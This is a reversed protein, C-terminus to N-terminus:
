EEVLDNQQVNSETKASYGGVNEKDAGETCEQMSITGDDDMLAQKHENLLVKFLMNTPTAHTLRFNICNTMCSIFNM